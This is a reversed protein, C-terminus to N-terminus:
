PKRPLRALAKELDDRSLPKSVYDDMGQGLFKERDGTMAYATLAIIPIRSDRGPVNSARIIGTAEIGGMVPMQIDMLICDLNEARWLEVAQLGNEALRTGHGMKGLLRQMYLQNSPEDEALLIRLASPKERSGPEAPITAPADQGPLAFPLVVHISTGHGPTSEVFIRGDMLEVLRHVIALGLGAGQHRRTYSGELQVFPKFLERFRNEPIGIGTDHVSFLIRMRGHEPTEVPTMELLISGIDTFKLSNGVLNFLIQRVRAEDGVLRAPVAPDISHLLSVGRERATVSFLEAVSEALERPSFEERLIDLRGAEIKSLDLLDTLLRTLRDTSRLAMSVFEDQEANLPTTQMLQLMGMIGNLPTRLEHSMNALFASKAENAAEAEEKARVLSREQNKQDTVDLACVLVRPEDLGQLLDASLLLCRPALDSGTRTQLWFEVGQRSKGDSFTDRITRSLDCNRCPIGTGCGQPAEDHNPCGLMDGCRAGLIDGEAQGIFAAAAQNVKRVRTERDFLMMLVPASKHIASLEDLTALLETEARKRDTIDRNCGRRGLYEGDKGFIAKCVHSVWVIEGSPKVVRLEMNRHDPRSHDVEDLHEVWKQRDDPHIVSRIHIASDGVFVEPPLGTIHESAPSVWVYRGDPGRWYEWDYTNDAIIRLHEESSRLAEEAERRQTVDERILIGGSVRGDEFWPIGKISQWASGGGALQPVFVSELTVPFGELLMALAQGLGASVLGPLEMVRRGLFFAADLRGKAFHELHFRNVFTVRGHRDFTMISLPLNDVLSQHLAEAGRRGAEEPDRGPRALSRELDAIRARAAALEAELEEPTSDPRPPQNM